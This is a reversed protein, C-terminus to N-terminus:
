GHHAESEQQLGLADDVYKSAQEKEWEVGAMFARELMYREQERERPTSPMPFLPEDAWFASLFLAAAHKEEDTM